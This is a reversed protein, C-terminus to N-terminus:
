AGVAGPENRMEHRAEYTEGASDVLTELSLLETVGNDDDTVIPDLFKEPM